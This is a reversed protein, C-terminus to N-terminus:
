TTIYFDNRRLSLVSGIFISVDDISNRMRNERLAAYADPDNDFAIVKLAGLRRMALALIGSGAGVDLGRKGRLDISELLEICLSTTEHSGTGFAQEQPVVLSLRDSDNPILSADPELIFDKVSSKEFHRLRFRRRRRPSEQSARFRSRRSDLRKRAREGQRRRFASENGRDHDHSGRRSRRRKRDHRQVNRSISASRH